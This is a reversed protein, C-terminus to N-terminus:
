RGRTKSDRLSEYARNGLVRKLLGLGLYRLRASAPPRGDLIRALRLDTSSSTVAFRGAPRGEVLRGNIVPDSTFIWRYGAERAARVVKADFRGGPASFSDVATGTIDELRKRSSDLEGSLRSADLDTLYSHTLGHSGIAMGSASLARIMGADMYGPRGTWGATVFFVAKLGRELLVPLALSYDSEYGDDFTIIVGDGNGKTEGPLRVSLGSGEVMDMHRSFDECAVTYVPDATAAPTSMEPGADADAASLAHYMLVINREDALKEIRERPRVRGASRAPERIM